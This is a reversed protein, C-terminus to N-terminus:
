NKVSNGNGELIVSNNSGSITKNPYSTECPTLAIPYGSVIKDLSDYKHKWMKGLDVAENALRVTKQSEAYLENFHKNSDIYRYTQFLLGFALVVVTISLIRISKM